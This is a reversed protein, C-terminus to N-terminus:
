DIIIMVEYARMALLSRGRSGAPRRLGAPAPHETSGSITTAVTAFAVTSTRDSAIAQMREPGQSVRSPSTWPPEGQAHDRHSQRLPGSANRRDMARGTPGAQRTM